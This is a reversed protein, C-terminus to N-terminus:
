QPHRSEIEIGNFKLINELSKKDNFGMEFSM